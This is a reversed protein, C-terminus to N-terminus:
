GLRESAPIELKINAEDVNNVAGFNFIRAGVKGADQGAHNGVCIPAHDFAHREAYLMAAREVERGSLQRVAAARTAPSGWAQWDEVHQGTADLSTGVDQEIALRQTLKGADIDTDSPMVPVGWSLLRVLKQFLDDDGKRM